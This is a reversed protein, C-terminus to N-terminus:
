GSERACHLEHLALTRGLHASSSRAASVRMERLWGTELMVVTGFDQANLRLHRGLLLSKEIQLRFLHEMEEAYYSTLELQGINGFSRAHQVCECQIRLICVTHATRRNWAREGAGELQLLQQEASHEAVSHNALGPLLCGSLM